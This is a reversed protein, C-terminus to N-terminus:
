VLTVRTAGHVTAALGGVMIYRVDHAALLELIGEAQLVPADPDGM